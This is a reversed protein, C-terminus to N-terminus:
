AGGISLRPLRLRLGVLLEYASIAGREAVADTSLLTDGDRGILTVIDGLECTVQTVDIMTLDMTVRGVIPCLEGRVSVEGRNSFSQRYGDAYGVPVTAIRRADPATWTAAYSVTDGSAIWRLDVVRARLHVAQELALRQVERAGFLAIGPRALQGPSGHPRAAIAASNDLHALADVPLAHALAAHVRAFREEQQVMSSESCDASHFHTFVGEPPSVKLAKELSAPQSLVDTWSAGARSMGTDISLHWPGGSLSRWRHIDNPEYLSPRVHLAVADGLESVSLPACCLIRSSCGAERLASAEALRSVGVAWPAHAADHQDDEFSVGVARAVDIMGLGYADAKLMVVLPVRAKAQLRAFNRRIAGVDVELWAPLTSTM